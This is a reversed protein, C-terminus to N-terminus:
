KFLNYNLGIKLSPGYLIDAEKVAIVCIGMSWFFNFGSENINEKGINFDLYHGKSISNIHDDFSTALYQIFEVNTNNFFLFPTHYSLKIGIGRGGNPFGMASSGIWTASGKLAFSFNDTVQYGVGMSVVEILGISSFLFIGRINKDIELNSTLSNRDSYNNLNIQSFLFKANLTFVILILLIQKM